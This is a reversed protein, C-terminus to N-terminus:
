LFGLIEVLGPKVNASNIPEEEEVGSSIKMCSCISYKQLVLVTFLIIRSAMPRSAFITPDSDGALM